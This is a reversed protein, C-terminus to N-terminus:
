TAKVWKQEGAPVAFPLWNEPPPLPCTAFPTFACPPNYAYNFDLSIKGDVAVPAKLFRGAGYTERGSTRDRFVFFIEKDGVSMPLLAVVEGAVTFAAQHTVEVQKFDGSMNPVIMNQPQALAEWVADVNWASDYAYYARDAVRKGAFWNRNRVRAALRGEREIVILVLSGSVVESPAGDRDTLLRWRGDMLEGAGSIEVGSAPASQWAVGKADVWLSGLRA